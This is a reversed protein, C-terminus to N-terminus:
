NVLVNLLRHSVSIYRPPPPTVPTHSVSIYRPPPPTVPTHSVSIYRPPPPTVPTHSVSIYRPPPPTVPTHSVSIYRPPPPTHSPYSICIHVKSPATHSQPILYLYTGQLPRHTVPTHSVSIYRPPPPTGPVSVVESREPIQFGAINLMDKVMGGKINMDLPSNSHLSFVLPLVSLQVSVFVYHVVHYQHNDVEYTTGFGM